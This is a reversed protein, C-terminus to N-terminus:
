VHCVWVKGLIRMLFLVGAMSYDPGAAPKLLGDIEKGKMNRYSYKM